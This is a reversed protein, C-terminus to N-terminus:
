QRLFLNAALVWTQTPVSALFGALSQSLGALLLLQEAVIHAGLASILSLSSIHDCAGLVTGDLLPDLTELFM